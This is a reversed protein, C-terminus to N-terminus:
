NMDRGDLLRPPEEGAEDSHDLGAFGHSVTLRGGVWADIWAHLICANIWGSIYGAM